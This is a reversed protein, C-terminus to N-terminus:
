FNMKMWQTVGGLIGERKALAMDGHSFSFDGDFFNLEEPQAVYLIAGVCASFQPATAADPAGSLATPRGLRTKVGFIREATDRAGTLLSGGGTIVARRLGSSSRRGVAKEAEDFVLSLIEELRPAIVACLEARSVSVSNESAGIQPIDIFRHDDGDGVLVSGHLAKIREAYSITGGFIQAIDRTIHEGGVKVGGCAVLACEEFVAFEASRAGIDVMLCGLDKEDESLVTHAAALPSAVMREVEIGARELLSRLNADHGNRVGLGLMEASLIGGVIGSPNAGVDEGDVCFRIPLAHLPIASEHAAISAGKELCDRVDEQTVAGGSLDLDVGIRRNLVQTAHVTITAKKIRVGAMREAAEVAVRIASETASAADMRKERSVIGHQGVGIIEVETTGRMPSTLSAIMCAAKSGGIDIAAIVREPNPKRSSSPTAFVM